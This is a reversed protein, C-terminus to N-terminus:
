PHDAARRATRHATPNDARFRGWTRTPPRGPSSRLPEFHLGLKQLARCAFARNQLEHKLLPHDRPGQRTVVVAGDSEIHAACEAARDVARCAQELLVRGATDDIVFEGMVAHWLAAGSAGLNTPIASPTADTQVVKLAPSNPPKKVAM